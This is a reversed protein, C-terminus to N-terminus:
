SDVEPNIQKVLEAIQKFQEPTFKGTIKIDNIILKKTNISTVFGLVAVKDSYTEKDSGKILISATDKKSEYGHRGNFVWKSTVYFNIGIKKLANSIELHKNDEKSKYEAQTKIHENEEDICKCANTIAKELTGFRQKKYKFQRVWPLNTSHSRWSRDGSVYNDYDITAEIDSKKITVYESKYIWTDKHPEPYIATFGEPILPNVKLKFAEQKEVRANYEIEKREDDERKIRDKYETVKANLIATIEEALKQNVKRVIDEAVGDYTWTQSKVYYTIEKSNYQEKITTNEM